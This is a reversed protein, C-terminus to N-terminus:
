VEAELSNILGYSKFSEKSPCHANRWGSGPFHCCCDPHGLVCCQHIQMSLCGLPPLLMQSDWVLSLFGWLGINCCHCNSNSKVFVNIFTLSYLMQISLLTELRLDWITVHWLYIHSEWARSFLSCASRLEKRTRNRHSQEWTHEGMDQFISIFNRNQLKKSYVSTSIVSTLVPGGGHKCAAKESCRRRGGLMYPVKERSDTHHKELRRASLCSHTRSGKQLLSFSRFAKCKWLCGRRKPTNERDGSHLGTIYHNRHNMHM